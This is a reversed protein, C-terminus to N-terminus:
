AALDAVIADLVPFGEPTVRLRGKGTSEVLGHERLMAIRAPDLPRGSLVAFRETDIGETLRLGMLLFEDAREDRTLPTDEIVGHGCGEVRM